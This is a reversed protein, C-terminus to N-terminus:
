ATVVLVGCVPQHSIFLRRHKEGNQETSPSTWTLAGASERDPSLGGGPKYIKRDEGPLLPPSARQPRKKLNHIGSMIGSM